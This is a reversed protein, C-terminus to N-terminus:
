AAGGQRWALVIPFSGESVRPKGYVGFWGYTRQYGYTKQFTTKEWQDKSWVTKVEVKQGAEPLGNPFSVGDAGCPYQSFDQSM